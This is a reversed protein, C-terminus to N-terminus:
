LPELYLHIGDDQEADHHSFSLWCDAVKFERGDSWKVKTGIPLPLAGEFDHLHPDDQGPLHFYTPLSDALKM